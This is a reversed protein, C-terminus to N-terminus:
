RQWGDNPSTARYHNLEIEELDLIKIIENM